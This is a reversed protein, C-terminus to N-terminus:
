FVGQKTLKADVHATVTFPSPTAVPTVLTAFAVTTAAVAAAAALRPSLALHGQEHAVKSEARSRLVHLVHECVEAIYAVHVEREVEACLSNIPIHSKTHNRSYTWSFQLDMQRRHMTKRYHRNTGALLIPLLSSVPVRPYPLM